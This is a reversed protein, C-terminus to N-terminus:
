DKFLKPKPPIYLRFDQALLFRLEPSSKWTAISHAILQLQGHIRDYDDSTFPETFEFHRCPLTKTPRTVYQLEIRSIKYGLQTLIYAYTHAQMRYHYPIGSPKTSSTKYDRVSFTGDGLSLPVLADYTGAVYIGPLLKHHIFTETSHVPPRGNICGNIMTTAMDKWLSEIEARNECTQTNLYASVTAAPDPLKIGNSALECFFHVINGLITSDSQTFYTENLLVEGYWERTNTFFKAVGSPSIRVYETSKNDKTLIASGDNYEAINM